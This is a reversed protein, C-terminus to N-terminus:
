PTAFAQQFRNYCAEILATAEETPVDIIEPLALGGAGATDIYVTELGLRRQFISSEGYLVQFKSVPIMWIFHRFVGRRVYLTDEQLAYGHNKYHQFAYFPIAPLALLGWLAPQWFYATPLVTVLLAVTFRVITRRITLRSVPTFHEPLTVPGIHNALGMAVPLRALPAVVQHGRGTAELGMTQVELTIWKFRRMLMNARLIMAQVRRLPITGQSLTLLGHRKHMKDSELWLKFGYYRNFSVLIGSLWSLLVASFIIVATLQWPSDTGYETLPKLWGRRLWVELEDPNPLMQEILSFAIAIYLLSFRMVGVMLVRSLPLSFVPTNATADQQRAPAPAIPQDTLGTDQSAVSNVPTAAAERSQQYTRVIERIEHATEIGVFELVGETKSSGATEIKVKATGFIRPLLSQEIEINQIREIPISRNQRNLVGSQIVIEKRTIRYRFRYYRLAILPLALVGYVIVAVVPVVSASDASRFIPILLLVFAPLSLLFRQVLTMPHLMQAEDFQQDVRM